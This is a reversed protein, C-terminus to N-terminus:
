RLSQLQSLPLPLAKTILTATVAKSLGFMQQLAHGGIRDAECTLAM